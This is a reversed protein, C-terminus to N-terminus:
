IRCVEVRDDHPSTCICNSNPRPAEQTVCPPLPRQPPDARLSSAEMALMVVLLCLAWYRSPGM